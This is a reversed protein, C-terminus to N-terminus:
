TNVKPLETTLQFFVKYDVTIKDVVLVSYIANVFVALSTIHNLLNTLSRTRWWSWVVTHHAAQTSDIKAEDHSFLVYRRLISNELLHFFSQISSPPFLQYDQPYTVLGIEWLLNMCQRPKKFIELQQIQSQHVDPGLPCKGWLSFIAWTLTDPKSYCRTQCSMQCRLEVSCRTLCLIQYIQIRFIVFHM